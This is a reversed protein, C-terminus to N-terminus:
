FRCKIITPVYYSWVARSPGIQYLRAHTRRTVDTSTSRWRHMFQQIRTSIAFQCQRSGDARSAWFVAARWKRLVQNRSSRSKNRDLSLHCNFRKSVPYIRASEHYVNNGGVSPSQGAPCPLRHDTMKRSYQFVISILNTCVLTGIMCGTRHQWSDIIRCQHPTVWTVHCVYHRMWSSKLDRVSCIGQFCNRKTERCSSRM